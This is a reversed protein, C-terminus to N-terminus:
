TAARVTEGPVLDVIAPVYLYDKMIVNVQRPAAAVGPTIRPTAPVSAGCAGFLAGSTGFCSRPVSRAGPDPPECPRLRGPATAGTRAGCRRAGSRAFGQCSPRNHGVTRGKPRANGAFNAGFDAHVIGRSRAAPRRGVAVWVLPETVSSVRAGDGPAADASVGTGAIRRTPRPLRKPSTTATAPISRSM